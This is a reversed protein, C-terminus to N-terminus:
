DNQRDEQNNTVTEGMGNGSATRRSVTPTSSERLAPTM